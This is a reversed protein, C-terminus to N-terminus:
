TDKRRTTNHEYRHRHGHLMPVHIDLNYMHEELIDVLIGIQNM